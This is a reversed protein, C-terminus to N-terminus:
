LLSLLVKKRYKLISNTEEYNKTNVIDQELIKIAEPINVIMYQLADNEKNYLKKNEKKFDCTYYRTISGKHKTNKLIRINDSWEMKFPEIKVLKINVVDLGLEELIERKLSNTDSEKDDVGGGPFGHYPEILDGYKPIITLLIDTDNIFIIGEVRRRFNLLNDILELM